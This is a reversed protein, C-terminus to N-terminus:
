LPSVLKGAELEATNLSTTFGLAVVVDSTDEPAFAPNPCDTSNVADTVGTTSPPVTANLSPPVVILAHEACGTFVVVPTDVQETVNVLAPVCENM